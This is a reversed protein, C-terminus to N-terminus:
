SGPEDPACKACPADLKKSEDPTEPSYPVHLTDSVGTLDPSNMLSPSDTVDTVNPSDLEGSAGPEDSENLTFWTFFISWFCFFTMHTWNVQLYILRIARLSSRSFSFVQWFVQIIIQFGWCQRWLRRLDGPLAWVISIPVIEVEVASALYLFVNLHLLYKDQRIWGVYGGVQHCWSM